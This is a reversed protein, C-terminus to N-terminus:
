CGCVVCCDLRPGTLSINHDTHAGMLSLILTLHHSHQSQCQGGHHGRQDVQDGEEEEQGGGEGVAEQRTVVRVPLPSWLNFLDRVHKSNLKGM